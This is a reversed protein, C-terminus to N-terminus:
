RVNLAGETQEQALGVSASEGGQWLLEAGVRPDPILDWVANVARDIGMAAQACCEASAVVDGRAEAIMANLLVLTVENLAEKARGIEEARTM